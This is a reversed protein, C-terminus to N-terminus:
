VKPGAAPMSADAVGRAAALLRALDARGVADRKHELARWCVQHLSRLSRLGEVDLLDAAGDLEARALLDDAERILQESVPLDPAADIRSRIAQLARLEDALRRRQARIREQRRLHTLVPPIAFLAAVVSAVFSLRGLRDATVPDNRHYFAEAAPHLPWGAVESGTKEDLDYGVDRLFGPDYVIELIDRVVRAPLDARAILIQSVTLTPVPDPPIRREPGLAGAPIVGARTGPIARTLAEADRIPVLRYKGSALIDEILSSNLAQTRMAAVMRGAAFDAVNGEQPRVITVRTSSDGSQAGLLRYYELVREGLTAPAGADRAGPNVTGALDRVERVASDNPVIVFFYQSELRALGTVGPASAIEDATSDMALDAHDDGRLLTDVSTGPSSNVVLELEYGVRARLHRSLTSAVRYASGTMAGVRIRYPQNHPHLWERARNQLEYSLDPALFELLVALAVLGGLYVAVARVYAPWRRMAASAYESSV